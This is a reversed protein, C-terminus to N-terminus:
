QPQQSRQTQNISNMTASLGNDFISFFAKIFRDKQTEILTRESQSIKSLVFESLKMQSFPKAGIGIRFRIFTNGIHSIVNEVGNHGGSGRKNSIKLDGFPLTLEDHVLIVNKTSCNFYSLLSFLYKGSENMFTTPKVLLIKKDGYAMLTYHAHYNKIEKFQLKNQEAIADLMWFGLNHRTNRYNLGPNGLGIVAFNVM